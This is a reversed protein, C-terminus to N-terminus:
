VFDVGLDRLTDKVLEHTHSPWRPLDTYRIALGNEHARDVQAKVVAIQEETATHSGDWGTSEKLEGTVVPTVERAVNDASSSSELLRRLPIDAFVHRPSLAVIDALPATPGTCVVSILSPTALNSKTCFSSLLSADHLPALAHLLFQFTMSPDTRLNLFLHFPRSSTIHLVSASSRRRHSRSPSPSSNSEPAFLMLLPDLYLSALTDEPSLGDLEPGVLLEGDALWVDVSLSTVGQNLAARVPSKIGFLQLSGHGASSRRRGRGMEADSGEEDTLASAKGVGEAAADTDDAQDEELSEDGEEREEEIEELSFCSPSGDPTPPGLARPSLPSFYAASPSTPPSALGLTLRPSKQPQQQEVHQWLEDKAVEGVSRALARCRASLDDQSGFSPSLPTSSDHQAGHTAPSLDIPIARPSHPPTSQQVM